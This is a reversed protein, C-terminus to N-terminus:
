QTTTIARRQLLYVDGHTIAWEIDHGGSRFGECREALQDLARLEDDTLCLQNQKEEPVPVTRTGGGPDPEVRLEKQGACRDLIEGGPRIRFSDPTVLGDVVATGLGWAAEIVRENRGNVPNETFLVGATDAEVMTQIVAGIRPPEDIGMQERYELVAETRGSAHVRELAGIVAAAEPVNIVTEHQGAFSATASDEGVGSSRVVYPGDVERIEALLRGPPDAREVLADLAEASMALGPPVPLDAQIAAGLEAAKGGFRRDDAADALDILTM